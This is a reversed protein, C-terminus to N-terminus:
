KLAERIELPRDTTISSISRGVLEKAVQPDNITWAHWEYGANMVAQTYEEPTAFYSDLGDAQCTKLTSLVSAVSPTWEEKKKKMRCLWYAKHQPRAKKFQKIVEQNFCILVVQDDKLGSKEIEKILPGVIEPGCKVEVFIKKGKPITAFVDSILPMRTGRFKDDKWKGVDLKQLDAFSTKSIDMKQGTLRKTDRDHFCVIKGDGTLLFDGEVADAGQKWALEFAPLTNEPAEYSAGRHAVILPSGGSGVLPHTPEAGPEIERVDMSTISVQMGKFADGGHVQIGINGEKFIRHVSPDLTEDRLKKGNLWFAIRNGCAFIQGDNWGNKKEISEDKNTWVFTSPCKPYYFAGTLTM